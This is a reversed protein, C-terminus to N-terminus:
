EPQKMSEAKSAAKTGENKKIFKDLLGNRRKASSASKFKQSEVLKEFDETAKIENKIAKDKMMAKAADKAEEAIKEKGFLDNIKMLADYADKYDKSETASKVKAKLAEHRENVRQLIFKADALIAKQEDDLKSEDLDGEEVGTKKKLGNIEDQAESRSKDLKGDVFAQAAKKLDKVVDLKGLGPFKIKAM